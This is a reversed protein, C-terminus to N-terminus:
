TQSLSEDVAQQLANMLTSPRAADSKTLALTRQAISAGDKTRLWEETEEPLGPVESRIRAASFYHQLVNGMYHTLFAEVFETESVRALRERCVSITPGTFDTGDRDLWVIDALAQALAQLVHGDFKSLNPLTSARSYYAREQERRVSHVLAAALELFNAPEIGATLERPIPRAERTATILRRGFAISSRIAESTTLSGGEDNETAISLLAIAGDSVSM